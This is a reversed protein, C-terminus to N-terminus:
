YGGTFEIRWLNDSVKFARFVATSGTFERLFTALEALSNFDITGTM